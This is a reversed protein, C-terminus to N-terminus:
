SHRYKLHYWLLLPYLNHICRQKQKSQQRKKYIHVSLQVHKCHIFTYRYVCHWMWTQYTPEEQWYFLQTMAQVQHMALHMIGRESCAILNRFQITCTYTHRFPGFQCTSTATCLYSLMLGTLVFATLSHMAVVKTTTVLCCVPTLWGYLVEVTHSQQIKDERREHGPEM